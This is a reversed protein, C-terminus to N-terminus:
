ESCARRSGCLVQGPFWGARATCGCWLCERSPGAQSLVNSSVALINTICALTSAHLTAARVHHATDPCKM